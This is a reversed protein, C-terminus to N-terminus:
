QQSHQVCVDVAPQTPCLCRSSATNLRMATNPQKQCKPPCQSKRPVVHTPRLLHVSHQCTKSIYTQSRLLSTASQRECGDKPKASRKEQQRIQGADKSQRCKKRFCFLSSRQKNELPTYRGPHPASSPYVSFPIGRDIQSCITTCTVSTKWM